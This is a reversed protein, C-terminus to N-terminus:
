YDNVISNVALIFNAKDRAFNRLAMKTLGANKFVQESLCIVLTAVFTPIHEVSMALIEQKELGIWVNANLNKAIVTYFLGENIKQVAPNTIKQRLKELFDSVNKYFEQDIYRYLFSSPINIERSLKAILADFELEGAYPDNHLMSYYMWGSLARLALVEENNLSFAMSLSSTILDVYTKVVNPSLSKISRTGNNILDSTLVTRITQLSFLPKNAVVYEGEQRERIFSSLDCVTYTLGKVTELTLPHSFTPVVPNPYIFITKNAENIKMWPYRLGLSQRIAAQSRDTNFKSGITTEYPSYFIAM